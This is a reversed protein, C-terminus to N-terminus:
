ASMRAHECQRLMAMRQMSHGLWGTGRVGNVHRYSSAVRNRTTRVRPRKDAEPLSGSSRRAETGAVSDIGLWRVGGRERHTPGLAESSGLAV